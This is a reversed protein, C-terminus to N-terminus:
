RIAQAVAVPRSDEDHEGRIAEARAERQKKVEDGRMMTRLQHKISSTAPLKLRRGFRFTDMRVGTEISNIYTHLALFCLAHRQESSGLKAEARVSVIVAM